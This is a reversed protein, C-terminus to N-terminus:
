VIHVFYTMDCGGAVCNVNEPDEFVFRVWTEKKWYSDTGHQTYVNYMCNYNVLNGGQPLPSRLRMEFVWKKTNIWSQLAVGNLYESEIRSLEISM